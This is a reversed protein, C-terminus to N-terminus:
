NRSVDVMIMQEYKSGTEQALVRMINTDRDETVLAVDAGKLLKQSVWLVLDINSLSETKVINKVGFKRGVAVGEDPMDTILILLMM